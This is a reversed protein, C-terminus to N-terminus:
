RRSFSPMAPSNRSNPFSALLDVLGPSSVLIPSRAIRALALILPDHRRLHAFEHALVMKRRRRVVRALGAAPAANAQTRGRRRSKSSQRVGAALARPRPAIECVPPAPAGLRAPSLYVDGDIGRRLALHGADACGNASEAPARMRNLSGTGSSSSDPQVAYPLAGPELHGAGTAPLIPLNWHPMIVTAIPLILIGILVATWVAHRSAPSRIGSVRLVLWGALALVLPRVLAAVLLAIGWSKLTM